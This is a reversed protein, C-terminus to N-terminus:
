DVLYFKQNYVDPLSSLRRCWKAANYDELDRRGVANQWGMNHGDRRWPPHSFCLRPAEFIFILISLRWLWGYTYTKSGFKWADLLFSKDVSEWLIIIVEVLKVNKLIKCELSCYRRAVAWDTFSCLIQSDGEASRQLTLDTLKWRHSKIKGRPCMHSDKHLTVTSSLVVWNWWYHQCIKTWRSTSLKHFIVLLYALQSVTSLVFAASTCLVSWLWM